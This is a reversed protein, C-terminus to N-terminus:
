VKVLRALVIYLQRDGTPLIALKDDKKLGDKFWLYKDSDDEGKGEITVEAEKVEINKLKHSHDIPKQCALGITSETEGKVDSSFSMKGLQKYARKYEKLLYDAILLDEKTLQLDGIKVTLPEPSVVYGIEISPTNYTQGHKEMLGLIKLYPNDKEM